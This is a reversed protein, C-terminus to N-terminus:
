RDIYIYLIPTEICQLLSQMRCLINKAARPQIIQFSFGISVKVVFTIQCNRLYGCLLFIIEYYIIAAERELNWLSLTLLDHCSLKEQSVM